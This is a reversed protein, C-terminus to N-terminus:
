ITHVIQIHNIYIQFIHNQSPLYLSRKRSPMAIEIEIESQSTIKAKKRETRKEISMAISENFSYAFYARAYPNVM